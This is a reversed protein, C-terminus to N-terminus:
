DERRRPYKPLDSPDKKCDEILLSRLHSAYEELKRIYQAKLNLRDNLGDIVANKRSTDSDWQDRLTDLRERLNNRERVVSETGERADALLKRQEALQGSVLKWLARILLYVGALGTGGAGLTGIVELVDGTEM